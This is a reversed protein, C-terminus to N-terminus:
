GFSARTQTLGIIARNWALDESAGTQLDIRLGQNSSALWLAGNDDFLGDVFDFKEFLTVVRTDKALAICGSKDVLLLHANPGSRVADPWFPLVTSELCRGTAILLRELLPHNEGMRVIIAEDTTTAVIFPPSAGDAISGLNYLRRANLRNATELEFEFLEWSGEQRSVVGLLKLDSIFRLSTMQGPPESILRWPRGADKRIELTSSESTLMSIAFLDGSPSESAALLQGSYTTKNGSSVVTLEGGMEESTNVVGGEM